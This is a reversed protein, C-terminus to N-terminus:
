QSKLPEVQPLRTLFNRRTQPAFAPFIQSGSSSRKHPRVIRRGRDSASGRTRAHVGRGREGIPLFADPRRLGPLDRVVSQLHPLPHLAHGPDARAAKRAASAPQVPKSHEAVTSRVASESPKAASKQKLAPKKHAVAPKAEAPAPTQEFVAPKADPVAPKQEVIAPKDDTAASKKVSRAQGACGSNGEAPGAEARRHCAQRGHCGVEGRCGRAQGARHSTEGGRAGAEARRHRAQRGRCATERRCRGCAKGARASLAASRDPESQGHGFEARASSRKDGYVLCLVARRRARRRDISSVFAHISVRCITGM